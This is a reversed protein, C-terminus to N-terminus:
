RARLAALVASTGIVVWVMLLFAGDPRYYRAKSAVSAIRSSLTLAPLVLFYTVFGLRFLNQAGLVGVGLGELNHVNFEGQANLEM